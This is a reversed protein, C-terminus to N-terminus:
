EPRIIIYYCHTHCLGLVTYVIRPNKTKGENGDLINQRLNSCNFILIRKLSYLESMYSESEKKAVCNM